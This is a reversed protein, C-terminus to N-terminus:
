LVHNVIPLDGDWDDLLIEALGGPKVLGIAEGAPVWEWSDVESNPRVSEEEAVALYNLMLTESPAYYHSGLFRPRLAAIGLEEWIERVVADEAREGKDVYGAPLVPEQEGYQRILLVRKGTRDLLIVSVAASFLPFRWDGCNECWPTPPESPHRKLTLKAGCVPCYNLEM